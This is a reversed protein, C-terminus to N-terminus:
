IYVYVCVCGRVWAGVCVCICVCVFVCVCVCVQEEPRSVIQFDAAALGLSEPFPTTALSVEATVANHLKWVVLQADTTSEISDLESKMLTDPTHM